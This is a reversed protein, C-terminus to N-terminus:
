SETRSDYLGRRFLLNVQGVDKVAVETVDPTNADGWFGEQIPAWAADAVLYRTKADGDVAYLVVNRTEVQGFWRVARLHVQASSTVPLIHETAYNEVRARYKVTTSDGYCYLLDLGSTLMLRPTRCYDGTVLVRIDGGSYPYSYVWLEVGGVTPLEAAIVYHGTADFAVAPNRAGSPVFTLQQNSEWSTFDANAKALWFGTDTARYVIYARATYRKKSVLESADGEVAPGLCLAFETVPSPCGPLLALLRVGSQTTLLKVQKTETAAYEWKHTELWGPWLERCKIASPLLSVTNCAAEEVVQATKFDGSTTLSHGDKGAVLYLDGLAAFVGGKQRAICLSVDAM